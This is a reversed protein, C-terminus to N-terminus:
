VRINLREFGLGEVFNFGLIVLLWLLLWLWFGIALPSVWYGNAIALVLHDYGITLLWFQYGIVLPHSIAMVLFWHGLTITLPLLWFFFELLWDGCAIAM